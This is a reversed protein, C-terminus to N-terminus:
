PMLEAHILTLGALAAADGDIAHATIKLPGLVAAYLGALEPTCVLHVTAGVNLLRAAGAVDAGVILGSLYSAADAKAMTGTVVRARTSFLMHLLDAGGRAFDAGLAFAPSAADPTGGDRALVSHTALLQFLEGSLATQFTTVSGEEVVAWKTHTGPLCIVHRGRALEPHLKLAGLIQVEEGRMVDPAADPAAAVGPLITVNEGTGRWAGAALDAITAPAAVYAVEHWGRSSGAMGALIVPAGADEARIAVIAAPYDGRTMRAIGHGDRHRDLLAGDAALRYIRRNTTGWDVAICAAADNRM